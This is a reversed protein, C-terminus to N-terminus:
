RLKYIVKQYINTMIGEYFNHNEFWFKNKISNM